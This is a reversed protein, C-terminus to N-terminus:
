TSIQSFDILYNTSYAFIAPGVATATWTYGSCNAFKKEVTVTGSLSTKV